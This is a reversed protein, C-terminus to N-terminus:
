DWDDDGGFVKNIAKKCEEFGFGKSLLHRYLKQKTSNDKQKNKIYKNALLIIADQDEEYDEFVERLIEESVGKTQLSKKLYIMGKKNSNAKIFNEAYYKDNIYGYDVLKQIAFDISSKLYGKQKLNDKAQKKTKLGKSVYSLGVNFCSLKESEKRIEEFQQQSLNTGTKIHHKVLIEAELLCVYEGDVFTKYQESKGKRVLDTIEM